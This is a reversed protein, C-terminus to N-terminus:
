GGNAIAAGRDRAAVIAAEIAEGFGRRNLERLAAETTGGKSTVRERLVGAREGSVNLVMAAGLVTQRVIEEAQSRDFGTKEAGAIMAEAMAFVYAPGSGAVATFADMLREEMELVSPGIARFLANVRAEVGADRITGYSVATVGQGIRASLNPMARVVVRKGLEREIREITVGAMISVVACAGIARALEPAFGAEAFTQPKVALVVLGGGVGDLEGVSKVLRGRDVVGEHPDVAIFGGEAVLGAKRAGQAIAGGMNGLGVIVLPKERTFVSEM